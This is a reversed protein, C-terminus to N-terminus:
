EKECIWLAVTLAEKPAVRRITIEDVWRDDEILGHQVIMDLIPKIANDLDRRRHALRGRRDM